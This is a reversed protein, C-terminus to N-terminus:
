TFLFYRYIKQGLLRVMVPKKSNNKQRDMNVKVLGGLVSIDLKNGEKNRDLDMWYIFPLHVGVKREGNGTRDVSVLSDWFSAGNISSIVTCVVLLQIFIFLKYM